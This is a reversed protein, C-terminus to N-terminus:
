RSTEKKRELMSEDSLLDAREKERRAMREARERAKREAYLKAQMEARVRMEIMAGQKAEIEARLDVKFQELAKEKRKIEAEKEAIVAQAGQEVAADYDAKLAEREERAKSERELARAKDVELQEIQRRQEVVQRFKPLVVGLQVSPDLKSFELATRQPIDGATHLKRLEPILDDLSPEREALKAKTEAIQKHLAAIEKAQKATIEEGADKRITAETLAAQPDPSKSLEILARGSFGLANPKEGFNRFIRMFNQCQDISLGCFMEAAETFEGHRCADKLETLRQGLRIVSYAAEDKARNVAEIFQALHSPPTNRAPANM